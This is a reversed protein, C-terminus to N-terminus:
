NRIHISLSIYNRLLNLIISRYMNLPVVIGEEERDECVYKNLLM